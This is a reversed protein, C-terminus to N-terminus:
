SDVPCRDNPDVDPNDCYRPIINGSLGNKSKIIKEHMCKSCRLHFKIPKSISKSVSIVIGSIRVLKGIFSTDLSKINIYNNNIKM